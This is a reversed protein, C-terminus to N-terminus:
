FYTRFDIFDFISNKSEVKVLFSFDIDGYEVMSFLQWFNYIHEKTRATSYETATATTMLFAWDSSQALLLERAMQNLVRRKNDDQIHLYQAALDTMADGMEHLHRYIWDNSKNLWVEYYGKDGWSSPHPEVTEIDHHINIYGVPTIAKIVKYKDIEKFLNYLFEPGEFWWHGFLEADYPSVIMPLKNMYSSIHEIQKERNFHFNAAHSKTRESAVYPNYVEKHESEGTIRHYKYGTFVRVGDPNIYDKIYDFDLDYGIDRYFDRYDVDGPYGSKSSWVQKSSEGDRGFAFVGNQSKIPAYVGCTPTPNGFVLGHSDMIFFEIGNQKLIRDLGDYYACEPLWIGRPNRGFHKQHCQVAIRIQAIVTKENISLLPLYGHTAGCTIVELKGMDYFYRYGNLVKKNLFGLFFKQTDIFLDRYFIAINRYEDNDKTRDVEKHGLEIQKQLYKEYKYMLHDDDLMEALPPTVSTTLAFDVGEDELKKLRQLLPIYCETIAEFLWFEELFNDYEPHKVFPLHSHLVPVWYGKIM